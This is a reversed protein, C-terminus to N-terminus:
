PLHHYKKVMVASCRILWACRPMTAQVLADAASCCFVRTLINSPPWTCSPVKEGHRRQVQDVLCLAANNGASPCKRCLLLVSQDIQRLGPVHHYKKVMVASCRILWACRPMTAQVLADAASWCFVRTLINSPPWTCSPVKEGHRRQVHDVLCLAANNGASPCRCCFRFLTTYPHIISAM